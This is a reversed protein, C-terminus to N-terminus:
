ALREMNGSVRQVNGGRYGSAGGREAALRGRERKFHRTSVVLLSDALNVLGPGERRRLSQNLLHWM